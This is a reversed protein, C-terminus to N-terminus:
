SSLSVTSSTMSIRNCSSMGEVAEAAACHLKDVRDALVSCDDLMARVDDTGNDADLPVGKVTTCKVSRTTRGSTGRANAEAIKYIITAADAEETEALAWLVKGECTVFCVLEEGGICLWM